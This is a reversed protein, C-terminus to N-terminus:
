SDGCLISVFFKVAPEGILIIANPKNGLSNVQEVMRDCAYHKCEIYVDHDPLYFDLRGGMTEPITYVIEMEVLLDELLYELPSSTKDFHMEPKSNEEDQDNNM